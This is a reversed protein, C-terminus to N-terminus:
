STKSAEELLARYRSAEDPKDWKEYLNVLTKLAEQNASAADGPSAQLMGYGELLLSEAEPMQSQQVLTRGLGILVEAMDRAVPAGEERYVGLAARYLSDAGAWNGTEYLMDGLNSYMIALGEGGEVTEKRMAIARRYHTEALRHQGQQKYLTGLRNLTAAVTPHTEGLLKRRLSLAEQLAQEAEDLREDKLLV